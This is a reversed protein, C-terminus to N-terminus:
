LTDGPLKREYATTAAFVDGGKPPRREGRRGVFLHRLREEGAAICDDILADPVVGAVVVVGDSELLRKIAIIDSQPLSRDPWAAAEEAPSTEEAMDCDSGLHEPVAGASEGPPMEPPEDEVHERGSRESFTDTVVSDPIVPEEPEKQELSSGPRESFSEEVMDESLVPKESEAPEPSRGSRVSFPEAIIPDAPKAEEPSRGPADEHFFVHDLAAAGPRERPNLSCLAKFLAAGSAPLGSELWDTLISPNLPDPQVRLEAVFAPLEAFFENDTAETHQPICESRSEKPYHVIGGRPCQVNGTM